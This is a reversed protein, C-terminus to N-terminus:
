TVDNELYSKSLSITPYQTCSAGDWKEKKINLCWGVNGIMNFLDVM